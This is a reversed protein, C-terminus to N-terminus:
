ELTYQIQDEPEHRIDDRGMILRACANWRLIADDNAPPRVKEAAEFCQMAETLEEHAVFSSRPGGRKLRAKAMREHVLGAYYAREYDSALRPVVSMARKAPGTANGMDFQDTLSLLLGILAQGNQPEIELVDLCISEAERPENLLRYREIMRLAEPIAAAHLKKLEFM